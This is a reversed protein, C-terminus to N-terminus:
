RGELQRIVQRIGRRADQEFSSVAGGFRGAAALTSAGSGLTLGGSTPSAVQSPATSARHDAYLEMPDRPDNFVEEDGPTEPGPVVGHKAELYLPGQPGGDMDINQQTPPAPQGGDGEEQAWASMALVLAGVFVWVMVTLSKRV